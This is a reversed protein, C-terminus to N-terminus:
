IAQNWLVAGPQKQKITRLPLWELLASVYLCPRTGSVMENRKAAFSHRNVSVAKEEVAWAVCNENVFSCVRSSSDRYSRVSLYHNAEPEIQEFFDAVEQRLSLWCFERVYGRQIEVDRQKALQDNALSHAQDLDKRDGCSIAKYHAESMVHVVWAHTIM